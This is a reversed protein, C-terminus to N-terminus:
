SRKLVLPLLVNYGSSNTGNWYRVIAFDSNSGNYAFGAVVLKDDGQIVLAQAGEEGGSGIATTVKGNTGFNTDLAGNSNYRALAFKYTTSINSYGAVVLKNDPQIALAYSGDNGYSSFSTTVKGGTGFGTDLNGNAQFRALAFDGDSVGAAVLKGDEQLILANAESDSGVPTTVKGSAGFSTDLEGNSNYRALAFNNRMGNYTYGAVILKSDPQIALAYAYDSSGVRAGFNTIAKGDIDFSTDLDGPASLGSIISTGIMLPESAFSEASVFLAMLILNIILQISTYRNM